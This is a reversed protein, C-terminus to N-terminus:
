RWRFNHMGTQGALFYLIFILLILGVIWFVPQPAGFKSCVWWAGYAIVAFIIVTILLSILQEM